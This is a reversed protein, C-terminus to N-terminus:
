GYGQLAADRSLPLMSLKAVSGARRLLQMNAQMTKQHWQTSAVLAATNPNTFAAPLPRDHDAAVHM